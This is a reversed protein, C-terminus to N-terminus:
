DEDGEAIGELSLTEVSPLVKQGGVVGEIEGRMASLNDLVTIIQKERKSWIKNMARKESELDRQM